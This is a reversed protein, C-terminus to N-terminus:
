FTLWLLIIPIMSWKIVNMQRPYVTDLKRLTWALLLCFAVLGVAVFIGEIISFKGANDRFWKGPYPWSYLVLLHAVYIHLSKSSMASITYRWRQLLTYCFSLVFMLLFTAGVRQMFWNPHSRYYDHGPYVGWSLDQIVNELGFSAAFLIIGAIGTFRRLSAFRDARSSRKIIYGVGAGICLYGAYPFLPFLSGSSFTLWSDFLINNFEHSNVVPSLVVIVAGVLTSALAFQRESRTVALLGAIGILGVGTLQLINMAFFKMWGEPQVFELDLLRAAPFQMVMGILILALGWRVRKVIVSKEVRGSANRKNAFVHVVGSVLLFTPATLGRVFHWVNWPFAAVDITDMGVLYYLTHGQIMLIMATLRIFDIAYIRQSPATTPRNGM